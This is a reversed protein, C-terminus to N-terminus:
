QGMEGKQQEAHLAKRIGFGIASEYLTQYAQVVLRIQDRVRVM